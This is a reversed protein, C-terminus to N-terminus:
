PTRKLSVDRKDALGLCTRVIITFPSAATRACSCRSSASRGSSSATASAAFPACAMSMMRARAGVDGNGAGRVRGRRLDDAFSGAADVEEIRV